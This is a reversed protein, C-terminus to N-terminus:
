KASLVKIALEKLQAASVNSPANTTLCTGSQTKPFAIVDRISDCNALLAVIRDIGLAIGGHPPTGYRLAELFFGFRSQIETKSLGLVEFVQHQLEESHIRLSGSGIEHGNMVLDYAQSTVKLPAKLINAEDEQRPATFPHHSSTINDADDKIFLPFDTVWLLDFAKKPALKLQEIFHLRLQGLATLALQRDAAIIIAIHNDALKFQEVLQKSETASLYKAIPSQVKGDAWKVWVVGQIGLPKVVDVLKDLQSRSFSSTQPAAFGRITGGDDLIKRFVKFESQKFLPDLNAITLDFRRDPKDSGYLQMAEEYTMQPLTLNAREGLVEKYLLAFVREIVSFIKERTVFSMELDLQTFEPQRDARLDEDRFCRVIQYYRDFGAIMLLQKFLQPSQPLAYFKGAHLRSPVLYDRAGEPTSSTLVPTEIDVFALEDLVRRIWGIIRHRLLFRQQVVSRRLDLYRYKLRLNETVESEGEVTFPITTASNYVILEDVLVEVQGSPLKLNEMGEPRPRVHGRVAIVFESRLAEAKAHLEQNHTPDFVVQAIGGRDRLDVFILGGHDRRRHVWGCLTVENGNDDMSLSGAYGSRGEIPRKTAESM